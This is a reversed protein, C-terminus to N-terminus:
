GLLPASWLAVIAPASRPHVQWYIVLADLARSAEGEEREGLGAM